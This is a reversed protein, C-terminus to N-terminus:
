QLPTHQRFLVPSQSRSVGIRNQRAVLGNAGHHLAPHELSVGLGYEHVTPLKGARRLFKNFLGVLVHQAVNMHSRPELTHVPLIHVLNRRIGNSFQDNIRYHM